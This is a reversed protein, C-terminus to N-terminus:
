TPQTSIVTGLGVAMRFGYVFESFRITNPGVSGSRGHRTQACNAIKRPFSWYPAGQSPDQVYGPGHTGGTGGPPSPCLRM